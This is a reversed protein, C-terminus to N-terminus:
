DVTSLWDVGADALDPGSITLSRADTTLLGLKPFSQHM